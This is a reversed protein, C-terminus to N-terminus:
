FAIRALDRAHHLVLLVVVSPDKVVYFLINPMSTPWSRVNRALEPRLRGMLPQLALSKAERGITDLMKDAAALNNEAVFLWAEFLDTQARQAYLVTAM